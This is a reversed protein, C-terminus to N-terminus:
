IGAKSLLLQIKDAAQRASKAQEETRAWEEAQLLNALDVKLIEAMDTITQQYKEITFVQAENVEKLLTNERKLAEYNNCAEVIFAANAVCEFVGWDQPAYCKALADTMSPKNNVIIPFIAEDKPPTPPTRKEM